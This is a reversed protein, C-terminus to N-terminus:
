EIGLELQVPEGMAKRFLKDFEEWTDSAKMLAITQQLQHDLVPLGTDETLFQHYRTSRNGNKNKPTKKKLENLVGKPLYNYIYDNTLKGAYSTKAKGKYEWGKLRFMQKYFEDPFRKAWPLMEESVFKELIAQLENRDREDQYGTVEDIVAILGVKAFATMIIYMREATRRQIETKLVGDHLADVYAKCLDVFLSAEFPQFQVGKNARYIPLENNKAINLWEKLNESLYPAIWMSSLNRPLAQSGNGKIGISRAAGRLSLVREKNDMVYCEIKINKEEDIVWIGSHTARPTDSM